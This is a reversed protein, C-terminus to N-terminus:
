HDRLTDVPPGTSDLHYTLAPRSITGLWSLGILDGDLNTPVNTPRRHEMGSRLLKLHHHDFFGHYDFATVERSPKLFGISHRNWRLIENSTLRTKPVGGSPCLHKSFWLGYGEPPHEIPLDVVTEHATVYAPM